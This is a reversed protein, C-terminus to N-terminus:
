KRQDGGHILAAVGALVAFPLVSVALHNWFREDFVAERLQRAADTHCLTCASAASAPLIALAATQILKTM